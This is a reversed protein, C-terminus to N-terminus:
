REEPPITRLLAAFKAHAAPDVPRHQKRQDLIQRIQSPRKGRFLYLTGAVVLIAMVVVYTQMITPPISASLVAFPNTAFM